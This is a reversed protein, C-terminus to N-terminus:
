WSPRSTCTARCSTASRVMDWYTQSEADLGAIFDRTQRIQIETMPRLADTAPTTPEDTTRRHQALRRDNLRRCRGRGLRRDEERRAREDAWIEVTFRYGDGKPTKERVVGYTTIIENACTSAVYKCSM